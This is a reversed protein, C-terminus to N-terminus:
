ISESKLLEKYCDYHYHRSEPYTKYVCTRINCNPDLHETFTVTVVDEQNRFEEGCKDCTFKTTIM